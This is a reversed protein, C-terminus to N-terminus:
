FEKGCPKSLRRSCKLQVDCDNGKLLPLCGNAHKWLSVDFVYTQPEKYEVISLYSQIIIVM